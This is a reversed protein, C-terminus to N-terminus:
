WEFHLTQEGGYNDVYIKDGNEWSYTWGMITEKIQAIGRLLTEKSFIITDRINL